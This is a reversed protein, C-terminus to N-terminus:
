ERNSLGERIREELWRQIDLMAEVDRLETELFEIVKFDEGWYLKLGISGKVFQERM